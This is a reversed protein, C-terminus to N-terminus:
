AIERAPMRVYCLRHHAACMCGKAIPKGCEIWPKRDGILYLCGRASERSLAPTVPTSEQWGGDGPASRPAIDGAISDAV